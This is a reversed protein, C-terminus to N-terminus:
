VTTRSATKRPAPRDGAPLACLRPVTARVFGSFSKGDVQKALAEIDLDRGALFARADEVEYVRTPEIGIAEFGSTVLEERYDSEDVAGAIYGVWAPV